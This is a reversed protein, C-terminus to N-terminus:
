LFGHLIKCQLADAVAVPQLIMNVDGRIGAAADNGFEQQLWQDFVADNM